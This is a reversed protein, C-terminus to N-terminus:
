ESHHGESHMAPGTSAPPHFDSSRGMLDAILLLALPAIHLLLRDASRRVHEALPEYRSFLFVLAIFALYACTALPLVSRWRGRAILLAIAVAAILWIGHWGPNIARALLGVFVESTRDLTLIPGSAFARHPLNASVVLLYWPVACVAIALTAATALRRRVTYNHASILAAALLAIALLIGELKIWPLLGLLAAALAPSSAEPSEQWSRLAVAAALVYAALVVDAYGLSGLLGAYPSTLFVVTMGLAFLCTLRDRLATVLLVLLALLFCSTVIAAFRDDAGGIWGYVWAETLPLLLPYSRNSIERSADMLLASSGHDMYLVRAKMAWTVWGDWGSLPRSMGRVFVGALEAVMWLALIGCAIASAPAMQTM